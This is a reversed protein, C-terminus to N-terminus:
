WDKLMWCSIIRSIIHIKLKLCGLLQQLETAWDHGVRQLAVSQLMGPKGTEWLKSLSMNTSDTIDDLWRMRHWGKEEQGWDIGADPDKGILQSKADPPWHGAAEGGTRGTFIWPQNGKPNVPKTEKSDLHNELIMKLMVTRFCWNKLAWSEKHDLKWM